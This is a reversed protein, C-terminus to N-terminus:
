WVWDEPMGEPTPLTPFVCEKPTSSGPEVEDIVRAGTSETLEFNVEGPGLIVDAFRVSTAQPGINDMHVNDFRVPGTINDASYGNVSIVGQTQSMCTVGRINRFTIDRFEPMYKPIGSFLPNYSTSILISNSMDRMCIDEYTIDTVRGGRSPDSKIRIGNFDNPHANNGVWRSDADITLDYVHIRELSPLREGTEHDVSDGMTESGISMGHGTGFQNHAIVLDGVYHGGKIAIQDDGTSITNCAIVGCSSVSSTGPDIGDTNRAWQPTMVKGQRNYWKSPTLIRVGWIIFGDGPSNCAPRPVGRVPASSIKAHFKPADLLTIRYMLFNTTKSQCNILTPNGISGNIGRLAGSAEWWSYDRGVLPEGGQGDITGDGVVGPSDGDISIFDACASSDNIGITGCNGLERQFNDPDRSAYLTVGEDVWLIVSDVTLHGTIFADNHGDRVLKVAGLGKCRILADQVRTTDLHAEDPSSKDSVLEECVTIDAYSPEPPLNPDDAGCSHDDRHTWLSISPDTGCQYVYPDSTEGGWDACASLGLLLVFAPTTLWAPPLAHRQARPRQCLQHNSM